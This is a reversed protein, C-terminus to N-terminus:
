TREVEVDVFLLHEAGHLRTGMRTYCARSVGLSGRQPSRFVSTRDRASDEPCALIAPSLVVSWTRSTHKHVQKTVIRPVSM